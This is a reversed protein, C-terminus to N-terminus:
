KGGKALLTQSATYQKDFDKTHEIALPTMTADIRLQTISSVLLRLQEKMQALEKYTSKYMVSLDNAIKEWDQYKPEPLPVLGMEGVLKIFEARVENAEILSGNSMKGWIKNCLQNLKWWGDLKSEDKIDPLPTTPQTFPVYQSDPFQMWKKIRSAKYYTEDATKYDFSHEEPLEHLVVREGNDLVAIFWENGYISNPCGGIWTTSVSYENVIKDIRAQLEANETELQDKVANVSKLRDMMALFDAMKDRPVKDTTGDPHQITAIDSKDLNPNSAQLKEFREELSKLREDTLLAAEIIRDTVHETSYKSATELISEVTELTKM